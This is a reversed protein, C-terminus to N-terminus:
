QQNGELTRWHTFIRGDKRWDQIATQGASQHGARAPCVSSRTAQTHPERDRGLGPAGQGQARVVQGPRLSHGGVQCTLFPFLWGVQSVLVRLWDWSGDEQMELVKREHGVEAGRETRARTKNRQFESEIQKKDEM